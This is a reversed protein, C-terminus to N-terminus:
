SPDQRVSAPEPPSQHARTSEPPSQRTRTSEPPRTGSTFFILNSLLEVLREDHAVRSTAGLSQRVGVIESLESSSRHAPHTNRTPQAETAVQGSTAPGAIHHCNFLTAEPLLVPRIHIYVDKGKPLYIAVLLAEVAYICVQRSRAVAPKSPRQRARAPM